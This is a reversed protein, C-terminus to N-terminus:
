LLKDSSDKWCILMEKNSCICMITCSFLFTKFLVAEILSRCLSIESFMWCLLKSACLINNIKRGCSLYIFIEISFVTKLVMHQEPKYKEFSWFAHLSTSLNNIEWSILNFFGLCDMQFVTWRIFLLFQKKGRSGNVFGTKIRIFGPKNGDWVLLLPIWWHYYQISIMVLFLSEESGGAAVEGHLIDATLLLQIM